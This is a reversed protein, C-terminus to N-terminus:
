DKENGITYSLKTFARKSSSPEEARLREEHGVFELARRVDLFEPKIKPDQLTAWYLIGNWGYLWFLGALKPLEDEPVLAGYASAWWFTDNLNLEFPVLLDAEDAWEPDAKMEEIEKRSYYFVGALELFDAAENITFRM